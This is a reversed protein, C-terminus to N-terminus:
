FWVKDLCHVIAIVNVEEEPFYCHLVVAHSLYPCFMAKLSKTLNLLLFVYAIRPGTSSPTVKFHSGYIM